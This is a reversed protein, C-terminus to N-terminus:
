KVGVIYGIWADMDDYFTRRRFVSDTDKAKEDWGELYIGTDRFGAELLLEQLEPPTWLRWDYTFAKKMQTGDRFKFHIHCLIEHTIHNYRAQDWVYTYPEIPDGDPTLATLIKRPEQCAKMSEPGGFVDLFLIGDPKLNRRAAQFYRRVGERTKWLYYSFNLALIGDVKPAKATLVDGYILHLREAAEELHPLHNERCWDLTPQDLDVGYAVRDPRSRVWECAIAATGCFDERITKLPRKRLRRFTREAFGLCFEPSQVAGEYLVHRDAKAATLRPKAAKRIPKKKKKAGM